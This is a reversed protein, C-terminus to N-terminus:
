RAQKGPDSKSGHDPKRRTPWSPGSDALTAELCEVGLQVMVDGAFVLTVVGGPPEEAPAFRIDLLGLVADEGQPLPTTRVSQVGTFALRARSRFWPPRKGAREWQFRNAELGFAGAKRDWKMADPRVLADQAAAAIVGLGDADQALLRLVSAEM